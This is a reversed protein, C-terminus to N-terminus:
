SRGRRAGMILAFSVLIMPLLAPTAFIILIPLEEFLTANPNYAFGLYITPVFWWLASFLMWFLVAGAINVLDHYDIDPIHSWGLIALFAGPAVLLMTVYGSFGPGLNFSVDSVVSSTILLPIFMLLVSIIKAM